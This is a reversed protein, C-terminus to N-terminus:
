DDYAERRAMSRAIRRLLSIIDGDRAATKPSLDAEQVELFAEFVESINPTAPISNMKM